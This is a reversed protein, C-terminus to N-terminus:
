TDTGLVITVDFTDIPRVDDVVRGAGLAEQLRAAASRQSPHHYRIETTQYEFDDANGVVVITADAAVVNPAVRTVHDADGIGDLLRVRTRPALYTGQPFPVLETIVESLATRDVRYTPLADEDEAPVEVVPVTAVDLQGAALGRVFRGIGSDLEGPVAAEDGSAAVAAVWAEWFLQQRTLASLDNEDERRAELWPAVDDPGLTVPGADFGDVDDPNQITLPAVPAVLEAWRSADLVVVDQVGVGAVAEGAGRLVDPTGGFAYTVSLPTAGAGDGVEVSPPLLVVSGGADGSRLALLAASRLEGDSAHVVLLTPSPELLGEFGPESPDTSTLTRGATSDRLTRAGVWTLVGGLLVAVALAGAFGTMWRRSPGRRARDRGPLEVPEPLPWVPPEGVPPAGLPPVPRALDPRPTPAAVPPEVPRDPPAVLPARRRAPRSPAPAPAAGPRSAEEPERDALPIPRPSAKAAAARAAAERAARRAARAGTGKEPLVLDLDGLEVSPRRGLHRGSPGAADEVDEPDSM